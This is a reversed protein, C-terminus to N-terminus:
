EITQHARLLMSPPITLGLARATKVNLVLDFRTPQEIPLESPKAGKLIRDVYSATRQWLDVSNAGYSVLGGAEVAEPSHFVVPLRYRMTAGALPRALVAILPQPFAVVAGLRDRAMAAFASDVDAEGRLDFAVLTVGLAQAAAQTERMFIPHTRNSPNQLVAARTLNPVLEKLVELRKGSLVEATNSLGTINGGPRPLSTVFGSGVPDAVVAMVIPIPQTATAHKLAALPPNGEAVIVAPGSRVVEAALDALPRTEGAWSRVDLSVNQGDIHGLEKLRQQLAALRMSATAPPTSFVVAVRPPPGARQAHSACPLVLQALAAALALTIRIM